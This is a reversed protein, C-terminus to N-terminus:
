VGAPPVAVGPIQLVAGLSHPGYGGPPAGAPVALMAMVATVWANSRATVDLVLSTQSAAVLADAFNEGITMLGPRVATMLTVM